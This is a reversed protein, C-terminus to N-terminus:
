AKARFLLILVGLGILILIAPIVIPRGKAAPVAPTTVPPAAATDSAAPTGTTDTTAASTETATASGTTTASDAVATDAVATATGATDLPGAAPPAGTSSSEVVSPVVPAPERAAIKPAASPDPSSSPAKPKTAAPKRSATRTSRKVAPPSVKTSRSTAPASTSPVQKTSPARSVSRTEPMKLGIHTAVFARSEAAPYFKRGSADTFIQRRVAEAYGPYSSAVRYANSDETFFPSEFQADWIRAIDEYVRTAVGAAKARALAADFAPRDNAALARRLEGVDAAPSGPRSASRVPASPVPTDDASYTETVAAATIRPMPAADSVACDAPTNGRQQPARAVLPNLAAMLALALLNTAVIM